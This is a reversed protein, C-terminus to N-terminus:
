ILNSNDSMQIADNSFLVLNFTDTERLDSVLNRILEKATELPYGSMSGSIDLVFIYERPPIDEIDCREPPQVMLMFFNENEGPPVSSASANFSASAIGLFLLTDRLM